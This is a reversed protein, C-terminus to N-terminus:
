AVNSMVKPIVRTNLLFLTDLITVQILAPRDPTQNWAPAPIKECWFSCSRSPNVCFWTWNIGAKKDQFYLRQPAFKVVRRWGLASILHISCFRNKKKEPAVAWRPGPDGLKKPSRVCSCVVTPTGWCALPRLGRRLSSPWQSRRLFVEEEGM